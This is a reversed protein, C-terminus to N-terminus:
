PRWTSFRVICINGAQGDESNSICNFGTQAYKYIDWVTVKCKDFQYEEPKQGDACQCDNSCEPM